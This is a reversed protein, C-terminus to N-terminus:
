YGAFKEFHAVQEATPTAGSLRLVPCALESLWKEHMRRSSGEFTEDDYGSAWTLFDLHLQHLDGGTEIRSGHRSKERARLRDLRVGANLALFV